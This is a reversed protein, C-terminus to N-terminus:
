ENNEHALYVFSFFGAMLFILVVIGAFLRGLSDIAFYVPISGVLDFLVLRDGAAGSIVYLALLACVIFSVGTVNLLSQRSKFVREPLFLLVFGVIVPLVIPLLIMINMEDLGGIM